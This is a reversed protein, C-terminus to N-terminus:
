KRNRKKQNTVLEINFKYAVFFILLYLCEIPWVIFHRVFKELCIEDPNDLYDSLKFSMFVSIITYAMTFFITWLTDELNMWIVEENYSM